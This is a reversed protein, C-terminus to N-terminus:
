CVSSSGIIPIPRVQADIRVIGYTMRAPRAAAAVLEADIHADEIKKMTSGCNNTAVTIPAIMRVKKGVSGTRSSPRATRNNSTSAATDISRTFPHDARAPTITAAWPRRRPPEGTPYRRAGRAVIARALALGLGIGGTEKNRSGEIRRSVGEFVEAIRDPRSARGMTACWSRSRKECGLPPIRRRPGGYKVSNEILNASRAAADAVPRLHMTLREVETFEVPMGLIAPFDEVV